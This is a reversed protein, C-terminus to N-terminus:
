RKQLVGLVEVHPTHPFLDLPQLDTLSFGKKRAQAVDRIFHPLDCSIYFITRISPFMRLFRPLGSFGARPPDMVLIEPSPMVAALDAWTRPKFLDAAVVTVGPLGREALPLVANGAVESVCVQSFGMAAIEETFNGSGAFLEMIAVSRDEAHLRDKLWAKMIRNQAENGQRFPRRRNLSLADLTTDSDIDLYNWAFGEGPLWADAPLEGKLQHFLARTPGDLVPCDSVPVLTRTVPSVYGITRGDTKFQARNRYGFVARSGMVSRIATSTSSFGARDLQYRVQREKERLQAEYSVFMWPCGGCLGKEFGHHPCAPDLRHPSPRVLEVLRAHGYRKDCDTIEFLGADGPWTGPVFFVGGGPHDCVGFGKSGLSRITGEFRSGVVGSM